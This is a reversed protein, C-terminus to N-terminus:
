LHSFFAHPPKWKMLMDSSCQLCFESIKPVVCAFFKSSRRDTPYKERMKSSIRLVCMDIDGSWRIALTWISISRLSRSSPSHKEKRLKECLLFLSLILLPLIKIRVNKCLVYVYSINPTDTFFKWSFFIREGRDRRSKEQRVHHKWRYM